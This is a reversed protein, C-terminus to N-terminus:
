FIGLSSLTYYTELHCCTRMKKFFVDTLQVTCHLVSYTALGSSLLGTIADYPLLGSLMWEAGERAIRHVPRYVAAAAPWEKKIVNM